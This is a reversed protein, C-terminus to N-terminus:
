EVAFSKESGLFLKKWSFFDEKMFYGLGFGVFISLISIGPNIWSQDLGESSSRAPAM